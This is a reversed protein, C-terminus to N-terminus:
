VCVCLYMCVCSWGCAERGEVLKFRTTRMGGSGGMEKSMIVRARTQTTSFNWHSV